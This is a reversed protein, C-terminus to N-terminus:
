IKLLECLDSGWDTRIITNLFTSKFIISEHLLLNKIKEKFTVVIEQDSSFQDEM